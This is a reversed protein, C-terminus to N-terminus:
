RIIRVSDPKIDDLGKTYTYKGFDPVTKGETLNNAIMWRAEHEMATILSQDLTLSFQHRPWATEIHADTANVRRQIIGRAEFPHTAAYHEAEDLSRLFRSIASSHVPIQDVRGAVIGFTPQEGQASWIVASSGFQKEITEPDINWIIAADISKDALSAQVQAPKLDTLKVDKLSSGQLTLFQGLYFEGISKSTVGINKGALDARKQIGRDKMGVLYTTQYKDISGVISINRSSFVEAILPYETSVSLDVDGKEMGAVAALASDYNKITVNLNNESFFGRDDAIYILGALEVPATGITISEPPQHDPSASNTLYWIGFGSLAIVAIVAILSNRNM